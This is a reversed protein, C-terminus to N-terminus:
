YDSPCTPLTVVYFVNLEFLIAISLFVAYILLCAIGLTRSLIFRPLILSCLNRSNRNQYFVRLAGFKCHLGDAWITVQTIGRYQKPLLLSTYRGM